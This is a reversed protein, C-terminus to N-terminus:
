VWLTDNQIFMVSIILCNCKMKVENEFTILICYIKIKNNNIELILDYRYKM